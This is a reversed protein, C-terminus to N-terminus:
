RERVFAVEFTQGAVAQFYYGLLAERDPDYILIYTSGPYGEDRLEVEMKIQGEERKAHAFSVNIPRPNFYGVQLQGDRHVKGVALVYNGDIRRWNGLLASFDDAWVIGTSVILVLVFISFFMQIIKIM